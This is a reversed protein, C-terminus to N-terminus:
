LTSLKDNSVTVTEVPVSIIGAVSDGPNMTVPKSPAYKGLMCEREIRDIASQLSQVEALLKRRLWIMLEREQDTM